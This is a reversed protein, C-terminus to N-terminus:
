GPRTFRFTLTTQSEIAIHGKRAPIFRARRGAYLASQDLAPFGSSRVMEAIRAKAVSTVVTNM